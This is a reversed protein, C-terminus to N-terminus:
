LKDHQEKFESIHKFLIGRRNEKLLNKLYLVNIWYGTANPSFCDNYKKAEEWTIDVECDKRLYLYTARSNLLYKLYGNLLAMPLISIIGVIWHVGFGGIIGLLTLGEIGFSYGHYDNHRKHTTKYTHTM